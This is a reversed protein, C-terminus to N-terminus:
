PQFIHLGFEGVFPPRPWYGCIYQPLATTVPVLYALNTAWGVGIRFRGYLNVGACLYMYAAQGHVAPVEVWAAVLLSVALCLTLGIGAIALCAGLLRGRAAEPM